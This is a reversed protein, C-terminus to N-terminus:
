VKDIDVWLDIVIALLEELLHMYYDTPRKVRDPDIPGAPTCSNKPNQIPSRLFLSFLSSLPTAVLACWLLQEPLILIESELKCIDAESCLSM